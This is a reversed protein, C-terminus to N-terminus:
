REEETGTKEEDTRHEAPSPDTEPLAHLQMKSGEPSRLEWGQKTMVIRVAGAKSTYVV